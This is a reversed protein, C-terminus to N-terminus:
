DAHAGWGDQERRSKTHDWNPGPGYAVLYLGDSQAIREDSGLWIAWSEVAVTRLLGASAWPDLALRATIEGDEPADIAFVFKDQDGSPGGYAVFRQDSLSDM